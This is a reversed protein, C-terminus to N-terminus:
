LYFTVSYFRKVAFVGLVGLFGFGAYILSSCIERVSFTFDVFLGPSIAVFRQGGRSAMRRALSTGVFVM